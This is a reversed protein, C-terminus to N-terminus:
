LHSQVFGDLGGFWALVSEKEVISVEEKLFYRYSSHPYEELHSVMQAAKPNQHIYVVSRLLYAESDIQKAKYRGQFLYGVRKYATNISKAYSFFLNKIGKEFGEKHHVKVVLHFHNPMLCYCIVSAHPLLYTSIRNLFYAYNREEFFILGKNNGRNFIHYFSNEEIKM